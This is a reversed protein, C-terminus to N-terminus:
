FKLRFGIGGGGEPYVVPSFSLQMDPANNRKIEVHNPGKTLAADLLNYVYIAGGSIFFYIRLGRFTDRKKMYNEAHAPDKKAQNKYSNMEATTYIIGGITLVEAGLIIFGKTKEGKYIQGLGPIISMATPAANSIPKVTFDDFQPVVNRNSIAFLQYVDYEFSDDAYNEFQSYQDVLRAYIVSPEGNYDFSVKYTVPSGTGVISDLSCQSRSVHYTNDVYDLLSKFTGVKFPRSNEDSSHMIHFSYTDNSRERNLETVGKKVWVPKQTAGVSFSATLLLFLILPISINTKKM